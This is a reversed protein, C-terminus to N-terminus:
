RGRAIIRILDLGEELAGIKGQQVKQFLERVFAPSFGAASFIEEALARAKTASLGRQRLTKRARFKTLRRIRAPPRVEVREVEKVAIERRIVEPRRKVREPVEGREIRELQRKVLASLPRNFIEEIEKRAQKDFKLFNRRPINMRRTHGRVNVTVRRGRIRVQRAHAPVNVAGRFGFLHVFFYDISPPNWVADAIIHGQQNVVIDVRFRQTAHSFLRGTIKGLGSADYTRRMATSLSIKVQGGTGRVANQIAGVGLFRVVTPDVIFRASLRAGIEPAPTELIAQKKRIPDEQRKQTIGM